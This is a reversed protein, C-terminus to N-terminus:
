FAFSMLVHSFSFVCLNRVQANFEGHKLMGILTESLSPTVVSVFVQHANDEALNLM